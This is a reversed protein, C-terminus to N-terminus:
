LLLLCHGARVLTVGAAMAPSQPATGFSAKPGPLTAKSDALGSSSRRRGCQVARCIAGGARGPRCLDTLYYEGKANQNEGESCASVHDVAPPWPRWFQVSARLQQPAARAAEVIADLM